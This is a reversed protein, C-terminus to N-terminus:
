GSANIAEVYQFRHGGVTKRGRKGLCLEILASRAVGYARAAASASPYITGDDLCKVSRSIAEPGLHSRKLWEDRFEVGIVRLREKTADSREKGLNYINGRKSDGIKKRMEDSMIRGIPGDGGRTSNYEPKMEGILRVEEAIAAERTTVTGIVTFEFSEIGHERIAAPFAAISGAKSAYGVHWRRRLGLDVSTVGIYRKGNVRNTALYLLYVDAKRAPLM